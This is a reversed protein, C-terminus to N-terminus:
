PGLPSAHTAQTAPFNLVTSPLTDHVSQPAPFYESEVPAEVLLVQASQPAPFYESEVPAEVLLVQASQPAPVYESVRPATPTPEQRLQEAFECDGFPPLREVLQRQLAPYVPASPPGHMNSGVVDEVVASAVLVVVGSGVVDEVVASAVLVVVGSGLVDEVVASAVLVVSRFLM